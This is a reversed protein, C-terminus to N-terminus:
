LLAIKDEFWKLSRRYLALDADDVDKAHADFRENILAANLQFNTKDSFIREFLSWDSDTFYETYVRM